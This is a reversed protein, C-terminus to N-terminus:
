AQLKPHRFRLHSWAWVSNHGARGVEPMDWSSGIHHVLRRHEVLHGAVWRGSDPLAMGAAARDVVLHHRRREKTHGAMMDAVQGCCRTLTDAM